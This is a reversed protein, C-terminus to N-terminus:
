STVAQDYVEIAVLLKALEAFPTGGSRVGEATMRAAKIVERAARLERVAAVVQPSRDFDISSYFAELEDLDVRNM